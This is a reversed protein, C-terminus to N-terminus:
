AAKVDVTFSFTSGAGPRSDVWLRGGMLTVLSSSITLGLGTGGFRRTSSGDVQQFPEFVTGQQEAPIGVGTDAVSFRLRVSRDRRELGQVSVLVRGRETFKIANGVLNDLVQRLRDADAVIRAPVAPDIQSQLELGKGRAQLVLPGLTSSVMEPLSFEVPEIRLTHSGLRSFDLLKEIIVLLANASDRSTEIYERQDSSLDTDLALETMGLIGNMPTRLEHSINAMFESKARSAELARDCAAVLEASMENFAAATAVIEASGVVPARRSRDGATIDVAARAIERIPKTTRRAFVVGAGLALVFAVAGAEILQWRLEELVRETEMWDGLLLVSGSVSSAESSANGASIPFMGPIYPHGGVQRPGEVVGAAWYGRILGLAMEARAPGELSSGSLEQGAVFSVQAGSITALEKAVADDLAYGITLSGLVESAFLAPESVTLYLRDGIIVIAPRSTGKTASAISAQLESPMLASQPWGAVAITRGRPDAVLCFSAGLQQRYGDGMAGITAADELLRPDTLHARFVPLTTVLRSLATAARARSELLHDFAGRANEVDQAARALSQRTVARTTALLTGGIALAVLVTVGLAVQAEMRRHWPIPSPM